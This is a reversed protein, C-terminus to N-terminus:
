PEVMFVVAVPPVAMFSFSVAFSSASWALSSWTLASAATPRTRKLSTWWRPGAAEQFSWGAADTFPALDATSPHAAADRHANVWLPVRTQALASTPALLLLLSATIVAKTKFPM